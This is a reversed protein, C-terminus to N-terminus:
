IALFKNHFCYIYIASSYQTILCYWKLRFRCFSEVQYKNDKAVFFCNLLMLASQRILLTSKEKEQSKYLRVVRKGRGRDKFIYLYKTSARQCGVYLQLFRGGGLRRGQEGQASSRRKGRRERPQGKRGGHGQRRPRFSKYKEPRRPKNSQLFLM